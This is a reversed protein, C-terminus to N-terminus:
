TNQSYYHVVRKNGNKCSVKSSFQTKTTTRQETCRYGLVRKTCRGSIGNAKRCVHFARVLKKAAPCGTGTATIKLVYTPGFKGQESATMSCTRAQAAAPLAALALVALAPAILSRSM